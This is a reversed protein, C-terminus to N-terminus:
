VYFLFNGLTYVSVPALEENSVGLTYHSHGSHTRLTNQHYLQSFFLVNKIQPHYIHGVLTSRQPLTWIEYSKLDSYHNEPCSLM